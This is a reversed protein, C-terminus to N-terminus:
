MRGSLYSFLHLCSNNIDPHHSTLIKKKFYPYNFGSSKEKTTHQNTPQIQCMTERHAPSAQFESHPEPHSEGPIMPYAGLWALM